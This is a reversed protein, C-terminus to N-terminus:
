RQRSHRDAVVPVVSKIEPDVKVVPAFRTGYVNLEKLGIAHGAAVGNMSKFFVRLYRTGEPIASLNDVVVTPTDSLSDCSKTALNHWINASKQMIAKLPM